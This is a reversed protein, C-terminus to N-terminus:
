GVKRVVHNSYVRLWIRRYIGEGYFYVLAAVILVGVASAISVLEQTQRASAGAQGISPASASVQQAMLTANQLDTSAKTPNASNEAQAQMYLGLAINLASVLKSVNGGDHQAAKVASFASAISSSASSFDQSTAATAPRAQFLLAGMVIVLAIFRHAGHRSM